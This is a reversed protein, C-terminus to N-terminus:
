KRAYVLLVAQRDGSKMLWRADPFDKLLGEDVCEGGTEIGDHYWVRGRASIFRCVFHAGGAYVIGRLSLTVRDGAVDILLRADAVIKGSDVSIFLFEPVTVIRASSKM